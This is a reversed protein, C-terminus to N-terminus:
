KLKQNNFDIKINYLIFFFIEFVVNISIDALLFTKEFIQSKMDKNDVLFSTIIM